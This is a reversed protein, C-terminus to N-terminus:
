PSSVYLYNPRVVWLQIRQFTSIIPDLRDFLMLSSVQLFAEVEDRQEPRLKKRSAYRLTAATIANSSSEQPHATETTTDGEDPETNEGHDDEHDQGHTRKGLIPEPPPSSRDMADM